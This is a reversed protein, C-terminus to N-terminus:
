ALVSISTVMRSKGCGALPAQAANQTPVQPGDLGDDIPSEGRPLVRGAVGPALARRGLVQLVGDHMQTLEPAAIGALRAELVRRGSDQYRQFVV